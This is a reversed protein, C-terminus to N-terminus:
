DIKPYEPTKNNNNENIRAINAITRNNITESVENHPVKTLLSIIDAQNELITTLMATATILSRSTLLQFDKKLLEDNNM